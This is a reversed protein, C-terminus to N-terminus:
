SASGNNVREVPFGYTRGIMNHHSGSYPWSQGGLTRFEDPKGCLWYFMQAVRHAATHGGYSATHFDFDAEIIWDRQPPVTRWYNYKLLHRVGRGTAHSRRHLIPYATIFISGAPAATSVAVQEDPEGHAETLHSGSIIQTPGMEVPTDQPYYFVQLYNVQPGFMSDADHHWEQSERPCKSLHNSMLVPLGVHQGLISRVAGCAVPNLLIHQEFWSELMIPSPENSRRMREIEADILGEPRWRPNAPCRLNLYDCTRRNVSEPVVAELMLFGSRCFELVESDGLTPECDFTRHKEDNQPTAVM